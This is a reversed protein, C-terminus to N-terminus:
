LTLSFLKKAMNFIYSKNVLTEFLMEIFFLVVNLVSFMEFFLNHKPPVYGNTLDNSTFDIRQCDCNSMFMNKM